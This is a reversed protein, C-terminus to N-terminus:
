VLQPFLTIKVLVAALREGRAASEGFCSRSPCANAPSLLTAGSHTAIAMAPVPRTAHIHGRRAILHTPGGLATPQGTLFIELMHQHKVAFRALRPVTGEVTM